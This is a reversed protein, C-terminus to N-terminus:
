YRSLFSVLRRCTAAGGPLRACPARHVHLCVCPSPGGTRGEGRPQLGPAALNLALGAAPIEDQWAGAARPQAGPGPSADEAGSRGRAANICAAHRGPRDRWRGMGDYARRDDGLGTGATILRRHQPKRPRLGVLGLRGLRAAARSVVTALDSTITIGEQKKKKLLALRRSRARGLKNGYTLTTQKPGAWVQRHTKPRHLM